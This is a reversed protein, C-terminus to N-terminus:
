LTEVPSYSTVNERTAGNEKVAIVAKARYEYGSRGEWTAQVFHTGSGSFSKTNWTHKTSWSSSGVKREQISVTIETDYESHDITAIGTCEVMKGSSSIGAGAVTLYKFRPTAFLDIGDESTLVVGDVEHYAITSSNHLGIVEKTTGSQVEGIGEAFAGTPLSLARLMACVLSVMKRKKIIM